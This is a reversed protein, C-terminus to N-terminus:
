EGRPAFRDQRSPVYWLTDGNEDKFQMSYGTHPAAGIAFRSRGQTDNMSLGGNGKDTFGVGYRKVGNHDWLIMGSLSGDNAAGGTLRDTGNADTLLLGYWDTQPSVNTETVLQGLRARPRGEADMLIVQPGQETVAWRGRPRDRADVIILEHVEMRETVPPEAEAYAAPSAWLAVFLGGGVLGALGVAVIWGCIRLTRMTM